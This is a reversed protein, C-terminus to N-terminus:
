SIPIHKSKDNKHQQYYTVIAPIVDKFDPCTIGSHQLDLLAQDCKYSAKCTFYALSERETRLLRRAKSFSLLGKAFLLPVTGKPERKLYEKMLMRYVQKATYPHPDTLQYTKGIGIDHHSLYSTARVIFDVPVFNGEADGNGLYPLFPVNRLAEFFNLIFYPGDFKITEGTQSHGVVIGPRIITVPVKEIISQVAVEAQFKTHEYHNKFSQGMDLETELIDGERTGAVYSTSFYTYRELRSLMLVFNNVCHTGHVNVRYAIDKPVALDYIAALHYVHTVTNRLIHLQEPLLDLHPKTIDGPLLTAKDPSITLSDIEKRAHDMMSPLVLLYLHNVDYGDELIQNILQKAIFGPFGTFFYTNGM